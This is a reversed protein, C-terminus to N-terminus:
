ILCLVRMSLSPYPSLILLTGSVSSIYNLLHFVATDDYRGYVGFDELM